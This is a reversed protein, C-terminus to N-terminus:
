RKGGNLIRDLFERQEREAERSRISEEPMHVRFTMKALRDVVRDDHKLKALDYNSTVITILGSNMRENVLDFIQSSQWEGSKEAGLDDLILLDCTRYIESKDTTGAERGIADGVFKLYNTTTVFRLSKDYKLSVSRGASCALLTKGSGAIDSWLYLGRDKWTERDVFFSRVLKEINRAQIEDEYVDFRFKSLDSEIYADPIGTEEAARREQRCNPCIKRYTCPAPEWEVEQDFLIYGVGGCVPCDSGLTHDKM